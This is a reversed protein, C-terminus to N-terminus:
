ALASRSQLLQRGPEYTSVTDARDRSPSVGAASRWTCNVTVGGRSASDCHRM